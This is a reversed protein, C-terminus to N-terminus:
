DSDDGAASAADALARDAKEGGFARAHDDSVDLIWEAFGQRALEAVGDYVLARVDGALVINARTDLPRLVVESAEVAQEVVGAETARDSRDVLDGDLFIVRRHVHQQAAYEDADL